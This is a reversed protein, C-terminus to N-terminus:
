HSDNVTDLLSLQNPDQIPHYAPSGSGTGDARQWSLQDVSFGWEDGFLVAIRVIMPVEGTVLVRGDAYTEFVEWAQELEIGQPFDATFQVVQDLEYEVLTLDEPGSSSKVSDFGGGWRVESITCSYPPWRFGLTEVKPMLQDQLDSQLYYTYFTEDRSKAVASRLDDVSWPLASVLWSGFDRVLEVDGPLAEIESKLAPALQDDKSAFARDASVLAVDSGTRALEVVAAWVLSDRYGGGKEDFPPKRTVARKVLEEHTIQPWPLVSIGLQDDFRESLYERYDFPSVEMPIPPLGLLRRPRVLREVSRQAEQTARDHNAVTEELVSAPICVNFWTADLMHGILEYTLGTCLYNRSLETADLVITKM